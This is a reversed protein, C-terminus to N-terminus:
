PHYHHLNCRHLHCCREKAVFKLNTTSRKARFSSLNVRGYSPSRLFRQFARLSLNGAQPNCLITLNAGSIELKSM